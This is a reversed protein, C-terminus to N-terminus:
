AALDELHRRCFAFFAELETSKDFVADAGLLSASSLASPSAYNTLVVVRQDARRKACHRVVGLGSGRELFLDVVALRWDDPRADLWAMAEDETTAIGVVRAPVLDEMAPILADRILSNDEVLFVSLPM